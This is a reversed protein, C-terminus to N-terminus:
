EVPPKYELPYTISTDTVKIGSFDYSEDPNIIDGEGYPNERIFILENGDYVYLSEADVIVAISNINLEDLTDAFGHEISYQIGYPSCATLVIHGNYIIPYIDWIKEFSGDVFRYEVIPNSIEMLTFDADSLNFHEKDVYVANLSERIQACVVELDDVQQKVFFSCGYDDCLKLVCIDPNESSAFEYVEFGILKYHNSDEVTGITDGLDRARFTYKENPLGYDSRQINNEDLCKYEHGNVSIFVYNDMRAFSMGLEEEIMDYHYDRPDRETGIISNPYILIKYIIVSAFGILILLSILVIFTKNKNM